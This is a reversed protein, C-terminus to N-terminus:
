FLVRVLAAVDAREEESVWDVEMARAQAGEGATWLGRHVGKDEMLRTAAPLGEFPGASAAEGSLQEEFTSLALAPDRPAYFFAFIDGKLYACSWRVAAGAQQGNLREAIRFGQPPAPCDIEAGAAGSGALGNAEALAMAFASVDARPTRPIVYRAEIGIRAAAPGARWIAIRGDGTEGEGLHYVDGDFPEPAPIDLRAVAGGEPASRGPAGRSVSIQAGSPHSYDCRGGDRGQLTFNAATEPCQLALEPGQAFAPGAMIAAWLALGTLRM